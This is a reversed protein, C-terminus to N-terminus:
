IIRVAGVSHGGHCVQFVHSFSYAMTYAMTYAMPPGDTHGPRVCRKTLLLEARRASLPNCNRCIRCGCGSLVSTHACFRPRFMCPSVNELRSHTSPHNHIAASLM